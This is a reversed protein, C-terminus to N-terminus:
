DAQLGMMRALARLSEVYTKQTKADHAAIEEPTAVPVIKFAPNDFIHLELSEGQEYPRHNFMKSLLHEATQEGIALVYHLTTIAIEQSLFPYCADLEATTASRTDHGSRPVCKMLTTVYVLEASTKLAPMYDALAQVVTSGAPKAAQEDELSPHLSVVMLTCHPHGEGPVARLRCATLDACQRCEGISRALRDLQELADEM